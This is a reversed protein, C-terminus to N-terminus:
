RVIISPTATHVHVNSCARFSVASATLPTDGLVGLYDLTSHTLNSAHDNRLFGWRRRPRDTQFVRTELPCMVQERETEIFMVTGVFKVAVRLVRSAVMNDLGHPCEKVAILKVIDGHRKVSTYGLRCRGQSECCSM